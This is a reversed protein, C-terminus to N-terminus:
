KSWYKLNEYNPNSGGIYFLYIPKFWAVHGDLFSYNVGCSHVRIWQNTNLDDISTFSGYVSCAGAKNDGVIARMSPTKVSSLKRGGSYKNYGYTFWNSRTVDNYGLKIRDNTRLAPCNSFKSNCWRGTKDLYLTLLIQPTGDDSVNTGGKDPNTLSEFFLPMWETYDNTYHQYAQIISKLQGTCDIAYARQRAKNLAPLLMGALIAIIAVVVLLEILTFVNEHKCTTKGSSQIKIRKM